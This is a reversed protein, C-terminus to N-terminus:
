KKVKDFSLHFGIRNGIQEIFQIDEADFGILYLVLFFTSIVVLCSLIISYLIPLKLSIILYGSIAAFLGALIGKLYRGDYPWLSIKWRGFITAIINMGGVSISTSIAAGIIGLKPVLFFCMITNVLLSISTMWFWSRQHGTMMLLVGISGTGCNILQGVALIILCMWGQRYEPGFVFFLIDSSNLLYIIFPIIGLYFNWKTGVRFIAELSGKSGEAFLNAFIPGLIANFAAYLIVFVMSLQSLVQYIGNATSSLLAGVILRDIWFVFISFVGAFSTPISYAIITQISSFDARIYGSLSTKFLRRVIVLGLLGTILFSITEAFIAYHVTLGTSIIVLLIIALGVLPQGFDELLVSYKMRLTSRTIGSAVSLLSCFPFIFSFFRLIQTLESKHFVVISLWPALLYFLASLIVGSILSLSFASIILGKIKGPSQNVQYEPIFKIVGQPLGLPIVMQLIRFLTWGISYLGFVSAGLVRALIIDGIFSLVRGGTKGILSLSAGNIVNKIDQNVPELEVLDM